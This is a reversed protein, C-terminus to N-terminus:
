RVTEYKLEGRKKKTNKKAENVDRLWMKGTGKEGCYPEWKSTTNM